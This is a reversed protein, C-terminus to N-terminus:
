REGPLEGGSILPTGSSGVLRPRLTFTIKQLDSRTSKGDGGAEVVWFRVKGQRSKETDVTVTAEIEVPGLEFRLREGEAEEMAANLERRLERIMSALEVM